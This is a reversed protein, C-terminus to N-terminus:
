ALTLVLSHVRLASPTIENELEQGRLRMGCIRGSGEGEREDQVDEPEKM